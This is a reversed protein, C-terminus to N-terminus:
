CNVGAYRRVISFVLLAGTLVYFLFSFVRSAKALKAKLKIDQLQSFLTFLVGCLYLVSVCNWLSDGILNFYAVALMIMLLISMFLGTFRVTNLRAKLYSKYKVKINKQTKVNEM